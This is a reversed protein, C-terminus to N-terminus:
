QDARKDVTVFFRARGTIVYPTSKRVVVPSLFPLVNTRRGDAIVAARSGPLEPLEHGDIALGGEPVRLRAFISTNPEDYEALAFLRAADVPDFRHPAEARERRIFNIADSIWLEYRGDATDVPVPIDFTVTEPERQFPRVTVSATLKDGPRVRDRDLRAQIMVAATSRAEVALAVQVREPRAKGLPNDMLVAIPVAVAMAAPMPGQGSVTNTSRLPPLGAFDTSSTYRITHQAPLDHRATLSNLIALRVMLATLRTHRAIGYHYTEKRGAVDVEVTMPVMQPASGLLGFIGTEEDQELRGVTELTGSLKFSRQVSPIIGHVYGTSIPLRSAGEGFMGHGFALFGEGVRATVTGTASIDVDGNILQVGVVSGAEIRAKSRAKEAAAPAGAAAPVLGFPRLEDRLLRMSAASLGSCALPTELRTLALVDGLGDGAPREGPELLRGFEFTRGALTLPKDLPLEIPARAGGPGGAPAGPKAPAKDRVAAVGSISIMQEIPQVGGIPDKNFMWGYAVAGILKGDIYVPSGSMGAVIGSHELNQGSMRVLIVDQKASFNKLVSVVEVNFREIATGRFVSLGYGKMGPEVKDLPLIEDPKLASAPAALLALVGVVPLPRFTTM